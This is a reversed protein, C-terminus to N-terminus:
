FDVRAMRRLWFIGFLWSGIAYILFGQGLKTTVLASMYHTNLVAAAGGAVFPLAGIVMASARGEATLARLRGFFRYRARITEAIKEIVEVLNGGTEKQILVSVAFIKLDRNNPARRTMQLVARDFPLGLNQEEFAHGFELSVPAPMETAVLKFASPLAHGARLSRAMMDLADPLQESLKLSRRERISYIIIVPMMLGIGAFLLGVIWGQLLIGACGGLLFGGISFVILRAVTVDVQAQEILLELREALPIGRLLSEITSSSSLRGQRLLTLGASDTGGLTQLRRRLEDQQKDSFFRITHVLGEILAVVAVAVLGVLVEKV